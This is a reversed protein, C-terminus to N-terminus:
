EVYGGQLKRTRRRISAPDIAAAGLLCYFIAGGIEFGYCFIDIQWIFLLYVCAGFLPSMNTGDLYQRRYFKFAHWMCVYMLVLGVVGQDILIELFTSHMHLNYSHPEGWLVAVFDLLRLSYQGKYGNGFLIGTRDNLAWDAAATWIYTRGNFTTVDEKSVRELIATFFPLSLVQYILLSFSMMLPMTFLSITYLGRIAKMARFAFLGLLVIFIMVSLRSNIDMMLGMNVVFFLLAAIYTLPRNTFDRIYFLLMLNMLAVLHAGDYIGFMFPLNVRGEFHHVLNGIGAAFGALNALLLLGIGDLMLRAFDFDDNARNYVHLVVTANFPVLFMVCMSTANVPNVGPIGNRLAVIMSAVLSIISLMGYLYVRNVKASFRNRYVLDVLYIVLILIFPLVSFIVGTSFNNKISLYNGIGYCPFGLLFLLNVLKHKVIM